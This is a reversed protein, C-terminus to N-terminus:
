YSKNNPKFFSNNYECNRGQCIAGRVILPFKKRGRTEREIITWVEIRRGKKEYRACARPWNLLHCIAAAKSIQFEIFVTDGTVRNLSPNPLFLLFFNESWIPRALLYIIKGTFIDSESWDPYDVVGSQCDAVKVIRSM